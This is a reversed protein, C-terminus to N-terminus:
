SFIWLTVVQAIRPHRDPQRVINELFWPSAQEANVPDMYYLGAPVPKGADALGLTLTDQYTGNYIDEVDGLLGRFERSTVVLERSPELRYAAKEYAHDINQFWDGGFWGARVRNRIICAIAAMGNPGLHAAENHALRALQAKVFTEPTM